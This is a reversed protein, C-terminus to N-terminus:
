KRIANDQNENSGSAVSKRDSERQEGSGKGRARRNSGSRRAFCDPDGSNHQDGTRYRM